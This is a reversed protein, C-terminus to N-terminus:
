PAQQNRRAYVDGSPGDPAMDVLRATMEGASLWGPSVLRHSEGLSWNYQYLALTELREICALSIDTTVPICEFSLSQVPRSLGQLVALEFGEVDIKVFVPEGYQEILADLTTVPVTVREDWRVQAFSDVQQVADVWETSLSSVMPNTSSVQMVLDGPEAGVAQPVLTVRPHSGYWRDLLEVCIPQPEVAVVQAGLRAWVATRHGVHAGVDFCLDGPRIFQGYFRALRRRRWVQGHYILISRWLGLQRRLPQM